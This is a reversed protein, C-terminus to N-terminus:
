LMSVDETYSSFRARDEKRLQDAMLEWYAPPELEDGPHSPSSGNLYSALESLRKPSLDGVTAAM